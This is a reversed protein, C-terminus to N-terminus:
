APTKSRKPSALAGLRARMGRGATERARALGFRLRSQVSLPVLMDACTVRDPWPTSGALGQAAGCSDIMRLEKGPQVQGGLLALLRRAPDHSAFTDDQSLAWIYGTRGTTLMIASAVLRGELWLSQVLIQRTAALGWAQARAFAARGAEQVLATGAPGKAGLPELALFDEMATRLPAGERVARTSLVGVGEVSLAALRSPLATARTIISRTKPEFLSPTQGQRALFSELLAHFKGGVVIQPFLVGAPQTRHRLAWSLFGDVVAEAHTQDVLPTGLMAQPHQWGRMLPAGFGSRALFVPFLGLLRAPSGGQEATEWLFVFRAGRAETLHRAAALAAAPEYFVNPEVARSALARWDAEFRAAAEVDAVCLSLAVTNRGAAAGMNKEWVLEPASAADARIGTISMIDLFSM